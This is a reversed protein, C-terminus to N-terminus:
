KTFGKTPNAPEELLGIAKEAGFRSSELQAADSESVMQHITDIAPLRQVQNNLVSIDQNWQAVILVLGLQIKSGDILLVSRRIVKLDM